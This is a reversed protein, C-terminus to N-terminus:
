NGDCANPKNPKGKLKTEYLMKCDVGTLSYVRLDDLKFSAEPWDISLISESNQIARKHDNKITCHAFYPFQCDRFSLGSVAFRQHLAGFPTQDSPELFYVGSNPFTSVGKFHTEIPETNAAIRELTEVFVEADQEQSVPGVGSSGTLTIEAPITEFIYDLRRRLSLVHEAVAAPLGLVIYTDFSFDM